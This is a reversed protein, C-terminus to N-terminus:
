FPLARGAFILACPARSDRHDFRVLECRAVRDTLGPRRSQGHAADHAGFGLTPNFGRADAPQRLPLRRRRGAGRRGAGRNGRPRPVARRDGGGRRCRPGLRLRCSWWSTAIAFNAYSAPEVFDGRQDARALPNRAGRRRVGRGPAPCRCLDRANPDDPGTARPLALRNPASSGRSTTSTATPTTTSWGTASGCCGSSAWTARAAAGRHRRAVPAPNRNPNLLCQETTSSWGPATATSRAAKSYGTPNSRGTARRRAGARGGITQDGEM